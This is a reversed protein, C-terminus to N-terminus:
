ILYSVTTKNKDVTIQVYAYTYIKVLKPRFLGFMISYLYKKIRYYLGIKNCYRRSFM